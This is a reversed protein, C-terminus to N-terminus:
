LEGAHWESVVALNRRQEAPAASVRSCRRVPMCARSTPSSSGSWRGIELVAGALADLELPRGAELDQLMSTKHEGVKEAGALRQDVSVALDIDLARAVGAAEEMVARVLQRTHPTGAIQVLSARTLASVPNFAVNGLLKLWLENRIRPQMACKLGAARLAASIAQCRESRAGDLEGISFRNGRQLWGIRASGVGFNTLDL